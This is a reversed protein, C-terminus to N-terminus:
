QKKKYYLETSACSHVNFVTEIAIMMAELMWSIGLIILLIHCTHANKGPCFVNILNEFLTM